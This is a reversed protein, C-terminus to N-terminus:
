LQKISNVLSKLVEDWIVNFVQEESEMSGMGFLRSTTM